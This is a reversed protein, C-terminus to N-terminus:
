RSRGARQFLWAVAGGVLAGVFLISWGIVIAIPFLTGPGGRMTFLVVIMPIAGGVALTAASAARSEFGDPRSAPAAAGATAFVALGVTVSALSNMFWPAVAQGAAFWRQWTIVLLLHLAVFAMAGIGLLKARSVAM